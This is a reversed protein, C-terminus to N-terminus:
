LGVKSREGDKVMENKGVKQYVGFGEFIVKM